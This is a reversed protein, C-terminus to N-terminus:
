SGNVPGEQEEPATDIWLQAVTGQFGPLLTSTIVEGCKFVRESCAPAGRLIISLRGMSM